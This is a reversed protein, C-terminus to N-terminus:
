IVVAGAVPLIAGSIYSAMDSALFAFANAVDEPEAMRGLPINKIIPQIMQEPLVAVMDTRTVGPAVANVRIGYKGLERSLSRTLGNVAFKSAPYGCGSAQGNYSVISSTNIIAGGTEKMLEAAARTCSYLAKINLDLIKDFDEDKYDFLPTSQSIGANNALIDLRGYKEKIATFERTVQERDSLKPWIAEVPAGPLEAKIKELAAKATEERSGCLVVTAGEELFKKVIAYGIGRTGGTVVAVKGELMKNMNFFTNNTYM